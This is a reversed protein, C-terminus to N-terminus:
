RLDNGQTAWITFFRGASCALQTQDGPQSSVSSSPIAVKQLIRAWLIGHVSSGPPSCLTAFLQVDSLKWKRWVKLIMAESLQLNKIKNKKNLNIELITRGWPLWLSSTTYHKSLSNVPRQPCECLRKQGPLVSVPQSKIGSLHQRSRLVFHKHQLVLCSSILSVVFHQLIFLTQVFLVFGDNWWLCLMHLFSCAISCLEDLKQAM